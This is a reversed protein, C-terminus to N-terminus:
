WCVATIASSWHLTGPWDRRPPRVRPSSCCAILPFFRRSRAERHRATHVALLGVAIALCCLAAVFALRRQTKM